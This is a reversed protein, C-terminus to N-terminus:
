PFSESIRNRDLFVRANTREDTSDDFGTDRVISGRVHISFPITDVGLHFFDFM